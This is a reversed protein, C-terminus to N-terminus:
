SPVKTPHATPQAGKGGRCEGEFSKANKAGAVMIVGFDKSKSGGGKHTNLSGSGRETRKTPPYEGWEKM